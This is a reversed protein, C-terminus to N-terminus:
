FVEELYSTTLYCLGCIRSKWLARAENPRGRLFGCCFTHAAFVHGRQGRKGSDKWACSPGEAWSRRSAWPDWSPAHPSALPWWLAGPVMSSGSYSTLFLRSLGLIFACCSPVSTPPPRHTSLISFHDRPGLSDTKKPPPRRPTSRAWWIQSYSQFDNAYLFFSFWWYLREPMDMSDTIGDLWRMRHWGKEERQWDKGADPDKRTLWNKADRPWLIPTEAEADTRGIFMWSQNGKSYALKIEKCDMPEWSEEGDGCNLLM